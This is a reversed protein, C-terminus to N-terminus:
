PLTLMKTESADDGVVRILVIGRTLYSRPLVARPGECVLRHLMRGNISYASVSRIRREAMDVFVSKESITLHLKTREAPNGGVNAFRTNTPSSELAFNATATDSGSLSVKQSASVYGASGVSVTVTDFGAWVPISDIRYNGSNDTIGFFYRSSIRTSAWVTCAPLPVVQGGIIITDAPVALRKSISPPTFPVKVTGTITCLTYVPLPTSARGVGFGAITLTLAAALMRTKM